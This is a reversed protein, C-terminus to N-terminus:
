ELSSEPPEVWAALDEEEISWSGEKGNYTFLWRALIDRGILCHVPQDPLECCGVEIIEITAMKSPFHISATHVSVQETRGGVRSLTTYNVLPLGVKEVAEPTVVTRSAGTDILAPMSSVKEPHETTFPRLHPDKRNRIIPLRLEIQFRPGFKRLDVPDKLPSYHIAM